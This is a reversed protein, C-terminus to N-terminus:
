CNIAVHQDRPIRYRPLFSKAFLICPDWKFKLKLHVHINKIYYDRTCSKPCLQVFIHIVTLSFSMSLQFNEIKNPLDIQTKEIVIWLYEM